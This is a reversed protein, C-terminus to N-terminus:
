KQAQTAGATGGRGLAFNHPFLTPLHLIDNYHYMTHQPVQEKDINDGKEEESSSSVTGPPHLHPPPVLFLCPHEDSNQLSGRPPVLIRNQLLPKSNKEGSLYRYELVVQSYTIKTIIKEDCCGLLNWLAGVSSRKLSFVM